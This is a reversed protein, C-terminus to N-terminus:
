MWRVFCCWGAVKATSWSRPSYQLSYGGDLIPPFDGGAPKEILVSAINGRNGCRWLRPVPLGCWQVTPGYRPRLTYDLRSPLITAEGRWDRWHEASLGALVPHDPVRAFVERLGYEATRSGFRKELVEATQEFMIVKLGERVRRIDPAPGTSTLASKGVIFTDFASLDASADIAEAPLGLANLLASTEGKPDFIAIRGGRQEVPM